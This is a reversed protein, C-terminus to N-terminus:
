GCVRATASRAWDFRAPMRAIRFARRLLPLPRPPSVLKDIAFDFRAANRDITALGDVRGEVVIDQWRLDTPLLPRLRDHARWNAWSFGVAFCLLVALAFAGITAIKERAFPAVRSFCDGGVVVCFGGVFVARAAAAGSSKAAPLRRRRFRRRAVVRGNLRAPANASLRRGRPDFPM